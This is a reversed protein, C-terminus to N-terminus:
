LDLGVIKLIIAPKIVAAMSNIDFMYASACIVLVIFIMLESSGAACFAKVSISNGMM